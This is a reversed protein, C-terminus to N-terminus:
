VLEGQLILVAKGGLIVRDSNRRVHVVGGRASAQYGVMETKGLRAGWYPALCCHASGTVPDENIGARPAFYRSVFDFRSDDSAATVIAGDGQIEILRGFDPRLTRVVEPSTVILYSGFSTRGVFTPSTVGLAKLLATPAECAGFQTAPFDLEILEGSCSATLVGSLTHFPIPEDRRVLGARWVVYASALTAHGCLGVEVKPTFWRLQYGDDVRRVFATESFNMEAAVSQMWSDDREGNLLCVAAPNGSFPRDTFADVQWIPIGV